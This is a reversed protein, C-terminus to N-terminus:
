RVRLTKRVFRPENDVVLRYLYLGNPVQAGLEDRGDWEQSHVGGRLKEDLLTRVLRGQVDLIELRVQSEKALAFPIKTLTAFPNPQNQLLAHVIQPVQVVAEARATPVGRERM